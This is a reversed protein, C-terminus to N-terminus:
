IINDPTMALRTMYDQRFASDVDYRPDNMMEQSEASSRFPQLGGTFQTGQGTVTKGKFGSASQYQQSITTMLTKALSEKGTEMADQLVDLTQGDINKVAWDFVQGIDQGGAAETVIKDMADAAGQMGNLHNQVLNQATAKDVGLKEALTDATAEFTENTLKGGQEQYEKTLADFDLGTQEDIEGETKDKTDVETKVETNGSTEAELYKALLAEQDIAGNKILDMPLGTEGTVHMYSKLLDDTNVSKTESNWFKEPVGEPRQNANDIAQQAENGQGAISDTMNLSTQDEQGELSPDTVNSQDMSIEVSADAM